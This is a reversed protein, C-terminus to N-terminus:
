DQLQREEITTGRLHWVCGGLMLAFAYLQITAVTGVAVVVGELPGLSEAVSLVHMPRAVVSFLVGGALFMRRGPGGDWSYLLAVLPLFLLPAYLRFGPFLVLTVIVTALMAMLRERTTEVFRYFYALLVGCVAASAVPLVAAPADPWVTWVIHSLPRQLTVYFRGDAPYGGVFMGSDTRGQLVETFYHVTTGPGFALIGVLVGALGTGIAVGTAVWRRDRLLWLGVLAPFLKFLAALAFAVGALTERDRALAWFGVVFAVGLLVNVNGFFVTAAVHISLVFLSFVLGVDVWGLPYGLEEIYQVLLATGLISALVTVLTLLTYGTTWDVPTFPAFAFTTVPPYLYVLTEGAPEPAVDYFSEGAVAREAAVHYVHYNVGMYTNGDTTGVGWAFLGIEPKEYYSGLGPVLATLLVVWAGLYRRAVVPRDAGARLTSLYERLTAREM